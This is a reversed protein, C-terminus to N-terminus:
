GISVERRHDTADPRPNGLACQARAVNGSRRPSYRAISPTKCGEGFPADAGRTSALGCSAGGQAASGKARRHALDNSRERAAAGRRIRARCPLRDHARPRRGRRGLPRTRSSRPRTRMWAFAISSAGTALEHEAAGVPEALGLDVDRDDSCVQRARRCERSRQQESSIAAAAECSPLLPWWGRGPTERGNKAQQPASKWTWSGPASWSREHARYNPYYDMRVLRDGSFTWPQADTRELQVSARAVAREGGTSRSSRGNTSTSKTSVRQWDTVGSFGDGVGHPSEHARAPERRAGRGRSRTTL